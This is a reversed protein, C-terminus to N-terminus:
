VQLYIANTDLLKSYLNSYISIHIKLLHKCNTQKALKDFAATQLCCFMFLPVDGGNM